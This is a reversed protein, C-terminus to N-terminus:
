QGDHGGFGEPFMAGGIGRLVGLVSQYLDQEAKQSLRYRTAIVRTLVGVSKLVLETDEPHEALVTALKVRLLAIEEDLGELKRAQPLLLRESESMAADYFSADKRSNDARNDNM